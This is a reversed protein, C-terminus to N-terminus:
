FHRYGTGPLDLPVGRGDIASVGGGETLVGIRTVPVGANAAAQQVAGGRDAPASFVLEYDDGGTLLDAIGVRGRDLAARAGRSLPVRGIEIRAGVGSAACLHGADAVLGDSVDVAASAGCDALAAGLGLRPEPTRYRAVASERDGAALGPDEGQLIRLGLAADGVTGSVYLHEGAAANARLLARGPEVEGIATLSLCVPGATATTDGGVLGIGFREQDEALGDAFGRLWDFGTTEPISLGLLYARPAAGMSALDSLNVRLLKRAVDFGSDDPLFHVGEVLMDVATVLRFGPRPAILAADDRLDLAGPEGAALPAFLERILAFEDPRPRGSM